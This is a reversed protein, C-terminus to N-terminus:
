WAPMFPVSTTLYGWGIRIISTMGHSGVPQYGEHEHLVAHVDVEAATAAARYGLGAALSTEVGVDHHIGELLRGYPWARGRVEVFTM